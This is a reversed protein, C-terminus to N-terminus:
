LNHNVLVLVFFCFKTEDPIIIKCIGNVLETGVGCTTEVLQKAIPEPIYQIHEVVLKKDVIQKKNKASIIKQASQSKIAISSVIVKESTVTTLATSQQELTYGTDGTYKKTISKDHIYFMETFSYRKNQIAINFKKDSEDLFGLYIIIRDDLLTQETSLGLISQQILTIMKASVSGCTYYVQVENTEIDYNVGYM